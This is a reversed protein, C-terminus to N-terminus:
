SETEELLNAWRNEHVQDKTSASHM